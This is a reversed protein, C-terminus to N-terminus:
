VHGWLSFHCQANRMICKGRTSQKLRGLSPVWRWVIIAKPLKKSCIYDANLIQYFGSYRFSIQMSEVLLKRPSCNSSDVDLEFHMSKRYYFLILLLTRWWVSETRSVGLSGSKILFRRDTSGQNLSTLTLPQGCPEILLFQSSQPSAGGTGSCATATSHSPGHHTAIQGSPQCDAPRHFILHRFAWLLHCLFWGHVCESNEGHM